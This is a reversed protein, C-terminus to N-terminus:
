LCTNLTLYTSLHGFSVTSAHFHHHSHHMVQAHHLQPLHQYFFVHGNTFLLVPLPMLQVTANMARIVRWDNDTSTIPSINQELIMNFALQDTIALAGQSTPAFASQPNTLVQRWTRLATL